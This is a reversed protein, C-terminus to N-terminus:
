YLNTKMRHVLTFHRFAINLLPRIPFQALLEILDNENIEALNANDTDGDESILNWANEGDYYKVIQV